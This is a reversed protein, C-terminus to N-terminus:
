QLFLCYNTEIVHLVFNDIYMYMFVHTYCTYYMTCLMGGPSVVIIVYHQDNEHLDDVIKSINSFPGTSLTFDLYKDMYEIDNWQTDQLM